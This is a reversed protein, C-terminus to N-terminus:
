PVGPSNKLEEIYRTPIMLLEGAPSAVYFSIVKRKTQLLFDAVWVSFNYPNKKEEEFLVKKYM